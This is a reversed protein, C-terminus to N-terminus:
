SEGSSGSSRLNKRVAGLRQMIPGHEWAPLSLVWELAYAPLEDLTRLTENPTEFSVDLGDITQKPTTGYLECLSEAQKKRKAEDGFFDGDLYKNWTAGTPNVRLTLSLGDGLPSDFVQYEPKLAM